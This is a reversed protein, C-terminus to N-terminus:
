KNEFYKSIWLVYPTLDKCLLPFPKKYEPPEEWGYICSNISLSYKHVAQKQM